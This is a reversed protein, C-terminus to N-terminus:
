LFFGIYFSGFLAEECCVYHSGFVIMGMFQNRDAQLFGKGTHHYFTNVVVDLLKRHEVCGSIVELVFNQEPDELDQPFNCTCLSPHVNVNQIYTVLKM